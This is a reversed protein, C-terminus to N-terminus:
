FFIKNWACGSKFGLREVVGIGDVTCGVDGCVETIIHKNKDYIM